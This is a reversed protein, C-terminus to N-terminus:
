NPRLGVEVLDIPSRGVLNTGGYHLYLARSRNYVDCNSTYRQFTAGLLPMKTFHLHFITHTACKSFFRSVQQPASYIRAGRLSPLNM